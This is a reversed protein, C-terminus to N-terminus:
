SLSFGSRWMILRCALRNCLSQGGTPKHIGGSDHVCCSYEETAFFIRCDSFSGIVRPLKKSCVMALATTPQPNPDQTKLSWWPVVPIVSAMVWILCILVSCPIPLIVGSLRTVSFRIFCNKELGFYESHSVPCWQCLQCCVGLQDPQTIFNDLFSIVHLNYSVCSESSSQCGQQNGDPHTVAWTASDSIWLSRRSFCVESKKNIKKAGSICHKHWFLCRACRKIHVMWSVSNPLVSLRTYAKQTQVKPPLIKLFFPLELLLCSLGEKKLILFYWSSFGLNM